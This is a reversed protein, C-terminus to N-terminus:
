DAMGGEGIAGCFAIAGLPWLARPPLSFRRPKKESQQAPHHADAIQGRNAWFVIGLGLVSFAVFHPTLGIGIQAITGSVAAGILAGLSFFGHLSGMIPKKLTREVEVGQANMAVDMAGFSFGYVLLVGGLAAPVPALALFSLSIVYVVACAMCTRASGYREILRGVFQFAILSGIGIFLLLTGLEATGLDLKSTVAPIRAIWNASIFGAIAFFTSVAFRPSPTRLSQSRLAPPM